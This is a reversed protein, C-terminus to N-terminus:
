PDPPGPVTNTCLAASLLLRELPADWRMDPQLAAVIGLKRWALAAFGALALLLLVTIAVPGM